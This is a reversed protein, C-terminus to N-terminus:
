RFLRPALDHLSRRWTQWEHDTGKSTFLVHSKVGAKTLADSMATAYEAFKVEAEGAGIWLLKNRANFAAADAFAGGYARQADFPDRPPPSMAAIWGFKDPHGLGIELAQMSGMSLGGMARHEPGTKTRFTTEISPLLESVLVEPFANGPLSNPNAGRVSAYGRDMVILMPVAHGGALLNDLIFNARGQDVWGRENEGAGHQLYLVPYRAAPDRDYDPPTYVHARRWQGTLPSHYWHARVSGHPVAKIDYFDEGKSPIDIGGTERGYGFYAFSGPDNVNLGDVSFWYYHFGPVAPPTTISWVGGDDRTLPLPKKVLGAGGHLLVKRAEPAQLRFTVRLDDAIRPYSAGAVNGPAPLGNAPQQQAFVPQLIALALGAALFRIM